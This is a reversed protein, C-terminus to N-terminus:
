CRGLSRSFWGRADGALGWSAPFPNGFTITGLDLDTTGLAPQVIVLDATNSYNGRSLGGPVASLYLAQGYSTANPNVLTRLAEFMSRKWNISISQSQPVETFAGSLSTSQGDHQTFPSPAFVKGLAAYTV